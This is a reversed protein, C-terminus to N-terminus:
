RLTPSEIDLLPNRVNTNVAATTDTRVAAPQLLEPPWLEEVLEVDPALELTLAVLLELAVADDLEVPVAELLPTDGIAASRTAANV